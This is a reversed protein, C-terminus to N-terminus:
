DRNKVLSLKEVGLFNGEFAYRRAIANDDDIFNLIRHESDFVIRESEFLYKKGERKNIVSLLIRKELDFVFVKDSHEKCDSALTECFAFRGDDSIGDNSGLNAKFEKSVLIEGTTAFAYFTGRLKEGYDVYDMWDNLVFNGSNSVKGDNPREMRGTVIAGNSDLLFYLGLNHKGTFPHNWSERWTLMFRGNPSRSFQGYFDLQEINVFKGEDEETEYEVQQDLNPLHPPPACISYSGDEKVQINGDAVAPSEVAPVILDSSCSPCPVTMGAGDADIVVHQGCRNCNFVIDM